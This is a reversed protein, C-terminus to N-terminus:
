DEGEKTQWYSKGSKPLFPTNQEFRLIDGTSTQILATSGDSAGVHLSATTALGAGLSRRSDNLPTQTGLYTVTRQYLIPKYYDTGTEFYRGWIFSEGGAKCIDDSPVFTTFTLLGGLLTAQGLNREGQQVTRTSDNANAFDLFEIRWGESASMRNMLNGWNSHVGDMEVSRNKDGFVRYNTVNVLSANDVQAYSRNATNPSGGDAPVILPEKIGYYSQTSTDLGDTPTFYRGTGFFVWNRKKSDVGATPAATVPQNADFLVNDAQWDGPNNNGAPVIRRMKGSWGNTNGASIASGSVTGYYIVDANYDLDFDVTIPDSIFSNIEDDGSLIFYPHLGEKLVGTATSPNGNPDMVTEDTLSMLKKNSVLQVLDLM